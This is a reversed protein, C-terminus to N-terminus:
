LNKKKEVHNSCRQQTIVTSIFTFSHTHCLARKQPPSPPSNPTPNRQLCSTLALRHRFWHRPYFGLSRAGSSVESPCPNPDRRLHQGPLAAGSNLPCHRKGRSVGHPARVFWCEGSGTHHPMVLGLTTESYLFQYHGPRPLAQSLCHNSKAGEPIFFLLEKTRVVSGGLVQIFSKHLLICDGVPFM